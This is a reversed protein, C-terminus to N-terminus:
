ESGGKQRDVVTPNHHDATKIHNEDKPGLVVDTQETNQSTKPLLQQLRVRRKDSRAQTAKRRADACVYCFRHGAELEREQCDPCLRGSYRAIAPANNAYIRMAEEREKARAMGSATTTDLGMPLVCEEFYQCTKQRDKLVCQPSKGFSYLSGDNRIGIGKCSGDHEFNACEERAFQLPTM